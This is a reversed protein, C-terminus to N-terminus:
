WRRDALAPDEFLAADAPDGLEDGPREDVQEVRLQRPHDLRQRALVGAPPRQELGDREEGAVRDLDPVQDVGGLPEPDLAEALDVEFPPDMAVLLELTQRPHRDDDELGDHLPDLFPALVRRNASIPEVMFSGREPL